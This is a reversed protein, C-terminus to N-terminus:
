KSATEMAIMQKLGGFSSEMQSIISAYAAFQRAMTDYKTDLANVAKEKDAELKEKRYQMNTKYSDFLGNYSNFGDITEKLLTGFGKDEAVGIFLDKIKEPDELLAEGLISEDVSLVGVKDFSFGANFLSSDETGFQQYMLNKINNVVSKLTSKDQVSSDASYIEETVMLLLENYKAAVNQVAPIIASDDKTINLTSVGVETATIKLNGGVQISNSSVDYAVGDVKAKLNKAELVHNGPSNFGLDVSGGITLTNEVGPEKSKIIVRYETDSVKELSADFKNSSNIDQILDEYTKGDTTFTSVGTSGSDITINGNSLIDTPSSITNSQWVDKQAVQEIDVQYTGTKLAGVDASDFLASTGTINASIQEFANNGSSFLDFPKIAALLENVKTNIETIKEKETDILELSKEIPTIKSKSDADYLKQILEGNLSAAGGTNFSGLQTYDAM